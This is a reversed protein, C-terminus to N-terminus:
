DAKAEEEVRKEFAEFSEDHQEWIRRQPDDVIKARAGTQRKGVIRDGTPTRDTGNRKGMGTVLLRDRCTQKTGSPFM